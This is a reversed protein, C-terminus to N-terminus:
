MKQQKVWVDSSSSFPTLPAQKDSNTNLDVAKTYCIEQYWKKLIIIIKVTYNKM